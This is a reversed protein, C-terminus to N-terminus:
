DRTTRSTSRMGKLPRAKRRVQTQPWDAEDVDDQSGGSPRWGNSKLELMVRDIRRAVADQASTRHDDRMVSQMPEPPKHAPHLLRSESLLKSLVKLQTRTRLHALVWGAKGLSGFPERAIWDHARIVHGARMKELKFTVHVTRGDDAASVFALLKPRKMSGGPGPLKYARGGWQAASTVDPLDNLIKAVGALLDHAIRGM